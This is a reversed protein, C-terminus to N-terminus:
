CNKIDSISKNKRNHKDKTKPRQDKTKAIIRIAEGSSSLPVSLSWLGFALSWKM